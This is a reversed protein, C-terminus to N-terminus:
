VVTGGFVTDELKFIRRWWKWGDSGDCGHDDDRHNWTGDCRRRLAESMSGGRWGQRRENGRMNWRTLDETMNRRERREREGKVDDEPAYADAMSVSDEVGM